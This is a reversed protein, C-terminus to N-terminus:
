LNIGFIPSAAEFIKVSLNNLVHVVRIEKKPVKELLSLGKKIFAKKGEIIDKATEIDFDYYLNYMKEFLTNINKYLKLTEPSLKFKPDKLELLYRCVYKYDDAIDELRQILLYLLTPKEFMSTGKVNVVRCCYMYFKNQVNELESIGDLEDYKQTAIADYSEEALSKTILFLRRMSQEFQSDDIRMISQLIVYNKGQDSIEFGMMLPLRRQIDKIVSSDDYNVKIETVGKRYLNFLTRSILRHPKKVTVEAKMELAKTDSSITLYGKEELIEVEDGANLNKQQIWKAPLSVTMVSGGQKVLKRKM